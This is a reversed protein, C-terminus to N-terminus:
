LAAAPLGFAARRAPRYLKELEAVHQWIQDLEGTVEAFKFNHEKAQQALLGQYLLGLTADLAIRGTVRGAAAVHDWANKRAASDVDSAYAGLGAALAADQEATLAAM